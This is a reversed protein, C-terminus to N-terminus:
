RSMLLRRIMIHGARLECFLEPCPPALSVKCPRGVHGNDDGQFQNKAGTSSVTVACNRLVLVLVLVCVSTHIDTTSHQSPCRPGGLGLACAHVRGWAGMGVGDGRGGVERM